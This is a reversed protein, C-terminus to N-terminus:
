GDGEVIKVRAGPAIRDSPFLIVQEGEEVGGVIETEASGRHGIQVPRVRARGDDIVFVSWEGGSRFLASAPVKLVRPSSWTVISAQVRYGDGLAVPPDIMDGIVYVRQEEVGLTSIKTFGQPEVLRVSAAIPVPGGWDHLRMPAGAEIRVADTSLVDVAVELGVADGISLLPTGAPVVRENEEHVQLVRGGAPSRVEVTVAATRGAPAGFLAARAASVDAAAAVRQAEAAESTSRVSALNLEAREMEDRSIAGQAAITRLRATSREEQRLADGAIGLRTEAERLRALAATLQAQAGAEGQADLPVPTIRALVMGPTVVDGADLPARELRGTVPAAVEYRDRVRTMGEADVTTELPGRTVTGAQVLEPDPRMSLVILVIIALAAGGWALRKRRATWVLRRRNGTMANM